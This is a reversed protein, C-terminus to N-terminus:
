TKKYVDNDTEILYCFSDTDTFLLKAKPYDKMVYNYHFDYIIHKSLGLVATGM